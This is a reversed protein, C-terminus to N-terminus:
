FNILNGINKSKEQALRDQDAKSKGANAKAMMDVRKASLELQALELSIANGIDQSEKLDKSNALKKSLEQLRESTEELDESYTIATAIENVNRIQENKCVENQLDSNCTSNCNDFIQNEEFIKQAMQGIQSKPNDIDLDDLTIKYKEMTETLAEIDNYMKVTDRVGCAAVASEKAQELQKRMIEIQTIQKALASPDFVVDGVGFIANSQTTMMAVTALSLTIKKITTKM